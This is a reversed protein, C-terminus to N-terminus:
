FAPRLFVVALFLGACKLLYALTKRNNVPFLNKKDPYILQQRSHYLRQFVTWHTAIGLVWLVLALNNFLLGLALYVIREGREWFGVRCQPLACESRARVYSIEFSGLLASVALIAYLWKQNMACYFLIGSLVVGDGYRDLSSDLIGGFGGATGSVRAVAGDM